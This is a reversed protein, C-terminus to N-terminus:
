YIYVICTDLTYVFLLQWLGETLNKTQAPNKRNKYQMSIQPLEALRDPESPPGPILIPDRSESLIKRIYKRLAKM